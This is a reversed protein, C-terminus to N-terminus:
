DISKFLVNDMSFTGDNKCVMVIKIKEYSSFGALPIEYNTKETFNEHKQITIFEDPTPNPWTNSDHFVKFEFEGKIGEFNMSFKRYTEPYVAKATFLLYDSGQEPVYNSFSIFENSNMDDFNYEANVADYGACKPWIKFNEVSLDRNGGPIREFPATQEVDMRFKTSLGLEQSSVEICIDKAGEEVRVLVEILGNFLNQTHSQLNGHNKPDGNAVSIIEGKSEDLSVATIDVNGYPIFTGQADTLYVKLMAFDEGSNNVKDLYSEVVINEAKGATVNKDTAIVKGDKYAIAEICGPEYVVDWKLPNYKDYDKVGLSKGNLVLEVQDGNTYIYLKITEGEKGDLSWHPFVHVMPKESWLAEVLFASDKKFGCGDTYGNDGVLKPWSAEGRYDEITWMYTGCIHDYDFMGKITQLTNAASALEGVQDYDNKYASRSMDTEFYTGRTGSAGGTESGVVPKDPHAIHVTEYLRVNHNVGVLESAQAAPSDYYGGNLALTVPRTVDYQKVVSTLHSVLRGGTKTAQVPEENGISWMIVSPHNRGCKLMTILEKQTKESWNFWRNEEMVMVGYQDCIDLFGPSVPNHSARYANGGMDKISEARHRLISRSFAVGISSHDQHGCIGKQKINKGNLYFGTDCDYRITRFGFSTDYDDIKEDNICIETKVSYLNCDDVDWLKPNKALMKQKLVNEGYVTDIESVATDIVNKEADYITQKVTAKIKALSNNWVTTEMDVDWDNGDTLTPNVYTGWMDVALQDTVILWVDRYIGAGEYWWGEVEDNEIKVSITNTEDDLLYPTIDMYFSNYLSKNEGALCGNCWVTSNKGAGDFLLIFRKGDIECPLNFHRRYWASKRELAGQSENFKEDPKGEIVYDHPLRVDRFDGDYFSAAAAGLGNKAKSHMYTPYHGMVEKAPIDGLHFKWGENLLIKKRM